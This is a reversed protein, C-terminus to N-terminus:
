ACKGYSRETIESPFYWSGEMSAAHWIVLKGSSTKVGYIFGHAQRLTNAHSLNYEMDLKCLAGCSHGVAGHLTGAPMVGPAHIHGMIVNGYTLAAQRPAYLGNHYGHILWYNGYQFGSRKGYPVVTSDKLVQNIGSWVDHCYEQLAASRAEKAERILRHDHNGMLVVQPDLRKMFNVAALSDAKLGKSKEYEGAGHRLAALDIFDGLHIRTDPKFHKLFDFAAEVASDDQYEGHTDSVIVFRELRKM